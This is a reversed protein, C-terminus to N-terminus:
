YPRDGTITVRQMTRIQGEPVGGRAIHMTCRNDWLVLEGKAWTHRYSFDPNEAHSILDLLLNEGEDPDMGDVKITFRRNIFLAKRGTDPHTRVIPHIADPTRAKVDDTM